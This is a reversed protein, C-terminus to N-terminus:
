TLQNGLVCVILGLRGLAGDGTDRNNLL